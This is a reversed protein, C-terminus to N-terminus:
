WAKAFSNFIIAFFDLFCLDSNM